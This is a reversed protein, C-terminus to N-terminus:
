SKDSDTVSPVSDSGVLVELVASEVSVESTVSVPLAPIVPVSVPVSVPVWVLVVPVLVVFDLTVLTSGREGAPPMLNIVGAGMSPVVYM